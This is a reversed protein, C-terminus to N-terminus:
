QKNLLSSHVGININVRLYRIGSPVRFMHDTVFEIKTIKEVKRSVIALNQNSVSYSM